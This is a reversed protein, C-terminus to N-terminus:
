ADCSPAPAGPGIGLATDLGLDRIPRDAAQGHESVIEAPILRFGHRNCGGGFGAQAELLRRTTALTV